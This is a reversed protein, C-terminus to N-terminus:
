AYYKGNLVGAGNEDYQEKSMWIGEADASAVLTGGLWVSYERNAPSTINVSAFEPAVNAIANHLHDALGPDTNGGSLIVNSYLSAQVSEDFSQAVNSIAISLDGFDVQARAEAVCKGEIVPVIRAYENGVDIVLGTTRNSAYVALVADPVINLAPVNFNEFMMQVTKERDADSTFPSEALLVPHEEPAVKLESYFAHWYIKQLADWDTVSSNQLPNVLPENNQIAADGVSSPTYTLKPLSPCLTKPKHNGHASSLELERFISRPADDGAFGARTRFSLDQPDM